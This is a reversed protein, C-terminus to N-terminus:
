NNLDRVVGATRTPLLDSNGGWRVRVSRWISWCGSWGLLAIVVDVDHITGVFRSYGLISDSAVLALAGRAALYAASKSEEAGSGCASDAHWRWASDAMGGIALACGVVATTFIWPHVDHGQLLVLILGLCYAFVVVSNWRPFSDLWRAKGQPQTRGGTSAATAFAVAFLLRGCLIAGLGRLVGWRKQYQSATPPIGVYRHEIELMLDGAACYVLGGAVCCRYRRQSKCSAASGGGRAPLACLLGAAMILLPVPKLGVAILALYPSPEDGATAGARIIDQPSRYGEWTDELPPANVTADMAANVSYAVITSYSAVSYLAGCETAIEWRHAGAGRRIVGVILAAMRGICCLSLLQWSVSALILDPLKNLM